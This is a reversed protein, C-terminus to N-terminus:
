ARASVLWCAAVMPVVGDEGAYPALAAAVAHHVKATTEEDQGRLAAAVPGMKLSLTVLDALAIPTPADLAEIAIDHWGSRELVGRVRLPDAFAFRGPALPDAKPMPPLLPAAAAVPAGALPNDAASRWCAFVLKAGPKLSARINAFARDFDSFFMVGFRSLAADFSGGMDAAGADGLLFDAAELGEARARERALDLLPASVDVGLCVGKPGLGRAMALTTAGAGCGIDLVRGGAGPFAAEVLLNEIPQNLGDMLGQLEVWAQGGAQNWHTAQDIPAPTQEAM